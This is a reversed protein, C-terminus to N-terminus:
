VNEDIGVDLVLEDSSFPTDNSQLITIQSPVLNEQKIKNQDYQGHQSHVRSRQCNNDHVNSNTDFEQISESNSAIGNSESGYVTGYDDQVSESDSAAAGTDDSMSEFDSAMANDDPMIESDSAIANDDPMSQSDSVNSNDDSSHDECIEVDIKQSKRCFGGVGYYHVVQNAPVPRKLKHSYKDKLYYQGNSSISTIQYPGTYKNKM